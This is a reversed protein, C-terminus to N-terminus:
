SVIICFVLVLILELVLYSRFHGLVIFVTLVMATPLSPYGASHQLVGESTVVM